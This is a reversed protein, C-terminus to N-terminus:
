QITLTLKDTWTEGTEDEEILYGSAPEYTRTFLLASGFPTQEARGKMIFNYTDIGRVGSVSLIRDFLQERVVIGDFNDVASIEKLYDNIKTKINNLVNTSVYEGSIFIEGELYLRDPFLSVSDVATGVFKIKNIYSKLALLQVASIPELVGANETAVKVFVRGSPLEKVSCRKIIQLTEDIVPYTLVGDNEQIIQENGVDASYQFELIRKQYWLPTGAKYSDAISQIETKAIDQFQEFINICIAVVRTWLRWLSVASPSNYVALSPEANKTAIIENQIDQISRAM